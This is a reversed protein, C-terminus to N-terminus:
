NSVSVNFVITSDATASSEGEWDRYYKFTLTAKGAKLAKFNWVYAGGAGVLGSGPSPEYDKSVLALVSSDSVTYHWTYGTTPNGALIVRGIDGVPLTSLGTRDLTVPAALLFGFRSGLMTGFESYNVKFEQIGAAYPFYDYQQFYFVLGDNSLYFEPDEGIDKFPHFDFESLDGTSVRRNIEQRIASNIVGNITTAGYTLDRLKLDRGSILDFTFATQITTGHAGGAYQYDQLVISMLGNQNYAIVYDFTTECKGVAGTYGDKVAQAMNDANEEGGTLADLAEKKLLENIMKQVADDELGKLQPYQVTAKLYDTQSLVTENLVAVANLCRRSLTIAGRDKDYSSGIPFITSFLGSDLYTRGAILLVGEGSFVAASYVHGNDTVQMATVDVSVSDGDKSAFVTVGSKGGTWSVTYGLAECVARFPLYVATGGVLAGASLRVGDLLIATEKMQEQPHTISAAGDAVFGATGALLALVLVAVTLKKM